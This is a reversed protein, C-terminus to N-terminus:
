RRYIPAEKWLEDIFRALSDNKSVWGVGAIHYAMRLSYKYKAIYRIPSPHFVHFIQNNITIANQKQSFVFKIKSRLYNSDMLNEGYISCVIFYDAIYLVFFFLFGFIFYWM